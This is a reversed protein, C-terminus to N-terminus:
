KLKCSLTTKLTYDAKTYPSKPYITVITKNEDCDKFENYNMGGINDYYAKLSDFSIKLGKGAYKSLYVAINDETGQEDAVIDYYYDEYFSKTMKILKKELKDEPTIGIFYSYSLYGAFGIILVLLVIAIIKGVRKRKM